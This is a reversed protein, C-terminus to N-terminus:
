VQGGLIPRPGIFPNTLQHHVRIHALGGVFEIGPIINTAADKTAPPAKPVGQSTTPSTPEHNYKAESMSQRGFYTSTWAASNPTLM